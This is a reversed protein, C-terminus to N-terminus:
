YVESLVCSGRLADELMESDVSSADHPQDQSDSDSDWGVMVREFLIRLDYNVDHGVVQGIAPFSFEPPLQFLHEPDYVRSSQM